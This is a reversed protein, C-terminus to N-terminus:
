LLTAAARGCVPGGLPAGGVAADGLGALSEEVEQLLTIPTVPMREREQRGESHPTASCFLPHSAPRRTNGPSATGPSETAEIVSKYYIDKIIHKSSGGLRGQLETGRSQGRGQGWKAERGEGLGKLSRSHSRSQGASRPGACQRM